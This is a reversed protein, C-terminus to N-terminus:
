NNLSENKITYEVLNMMRPRQNIGWRSGTPKTM